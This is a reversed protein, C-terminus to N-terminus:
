KHITQFHKYDIMNRKYYSKEEIDKQIRKVILQRDKEKM